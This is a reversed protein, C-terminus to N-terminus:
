AMGRVAAPRAWSVAPTRTSEHRAGVGLPFAEDSQSARDAIPDRCSTHSDNAM